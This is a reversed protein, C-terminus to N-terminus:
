LRVSPGLCEEKEVVAGVFCEVAVLAQPYWATAMEAKEEVEARKRV